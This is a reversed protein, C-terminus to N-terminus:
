LKIMLVGAATKYMEGAVLGGNGAAADNAYTPIGTFIVNAAKIKGNVELKEQLVKGSGYGLGWNGKSDVISSYMVRQPTDQNDLIDFRFRTLDDSARAAFTATKLFAHPMAPNIVGSTLIADYDERAGIGFRKLNSGEGIWGVMQDNKDLFHLYSFLADDERAHETNKFIAFPSRSTPVNIQLHAKPESTHIGVFGEKTVVVDNLQQAATPVGTTNNDRGGDIHLTAQPNVTNIGVNGQQAFVSAGFLFPLITLYFKKM